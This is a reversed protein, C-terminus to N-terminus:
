SPGNCAVYARHVRRKMYIQQLIIHHAGLSALTRQPRLTALVDNIGLLEANVVLFDRAISVPRRRNPTTRFGWLEKPTGYHEGEVSKWKTLGLSTM